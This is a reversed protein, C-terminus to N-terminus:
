RLMPARLSPRRPPSALPDWQSHTCPGSVGVLVRDACLELLPPSPAGAAAPAVVRASTLAVLVEAEGDPDTIAHSPGFDAFVYTSLGLVGGALFVISPVPAHADGSLSSPQATNRCFADFLALESLPRNDTFVVAHFPSLHEAALHDHTLVRVPVDNLAQLGPVTAADRHQGINLPRLFFNSALDSSVVPSRDYVTLSRPTALLINKAAAPDM